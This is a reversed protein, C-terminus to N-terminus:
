FDALAKSNWLAHFSFNLAINDLGPLGLLGYSDKPNGIFCLGM